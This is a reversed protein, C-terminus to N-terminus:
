VMMIQIPPTSQNRQHNKVNNVGDSDCDAANWAANPTQSHHYHVTIKQIRTIEGKGDTVGDGDTDANWYNVTGDTFRRVFLKCLFV